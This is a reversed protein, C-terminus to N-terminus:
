RVKSEYSPCPNGGTKADHQIIPDRRHTGGGCSETCPTWQAWEYDCDLYQDPNKLRDVANHNMNLNKGALDKLSGTSGHVDVDDDSSSSSYGAQKGEARLGRRGAYLTGKDGSAPALAALGVALSLKWM